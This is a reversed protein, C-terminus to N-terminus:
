LSLPLATFAVHSLIGTELFFLFSKFSIGYQRKINKLHQYTKRDGILLMWGDQGNVYHNFKDLLDEAIMSIAEDSDPDENVLEM